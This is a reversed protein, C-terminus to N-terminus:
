IRLFLVDHYCNFKAIHKIENIIDTIHGNNTTSYVYRKFKIFYVVSKM